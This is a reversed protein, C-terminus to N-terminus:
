PIFSMNTNPPHPRGNPGPASPPNKKLVALEEPTYPVAQAELVALRARLQEAQANTTGPAPNPAAVAAAALKTQLEDKQREADALKARLEIVNQDRHAEADALDRTRAALEEKL